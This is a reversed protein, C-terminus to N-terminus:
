WRILCNQRKFLSLTTELETRGRPLASARAPRAARYPSGVATFVPEYWLRPRHPRSRCSVTGALAPLVRGPPRSAGGMRRALSDAIEALSRRRAHVVALRRNEAPKHPLRWWLKETEGRLVPHAARVLVGLLASKGAGPKGTVVRLSSGSGNLWDSLDGTCSIVPDFAEDLLSDITEDLQSLV